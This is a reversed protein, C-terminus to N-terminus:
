KPAGQLLLYSAGAAQKARAEQGDGVEALYRGVPVVCYAETDRASPYKRYTACRGGPVGKITSEVSGEYFSKIESLFRDALLEAAAADKARYVMNGARAVLDVGTDAFNKVSAPIDTQNVVTSRAPVTANRQSPAALTYRLLNDRDVALTSFKDVPTPAFGDLAKGQLDFFKKISEPGVTMYFALVFQGRALVGAYSVTNTRDWKKSYVKAEPYGPVSEPVKPQSAAGFVDKEPGMIAPNAVAAAAAAPDKMRFVGMVVQKSGASSSTGPKTDNASTYSGVEMDHLAVGIGEGFTSSLSPKGVTSRGNYRTSPDIDPPLPITEVMRYGEVARGETESTPGISRPTTAFSGTDPKPIASPDAVPDGAVTTSCGTLVLTAGVAVAVLKRVM